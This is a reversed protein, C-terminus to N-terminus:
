RRAPDDSRGALYDISVDFYDALAILGDIDPPFLSNEWYYYKEEDLGLKKSLENESLAQANRLGRLRQTFQHQASSFTKNRAKLKVWFETEGMGFGKALKDITSMTPNKSKGKLISDITSQSLGSLKALRNISLGREECLEQILGILDFHAELSIM